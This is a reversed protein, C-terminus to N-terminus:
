PDLTFTYQGEPTREQAYTLNYSIMTDILSLLEDKEARSYLQTNM